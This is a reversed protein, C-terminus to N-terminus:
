KDTMVAVGDWNERDGGSHGHVGHSIQECTRNLLRATAVDEPTKRRLDELLDRAEIFQAGQFATLAEEYQRAVARREETIAEQGDCISVGEQQCRTQSALLAELALTVSPRLRRDSDADLAEDSDNGARVRGTELDVPDPNVVALIGSDTAAVRCSNAM